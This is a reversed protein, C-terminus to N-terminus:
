LIIDPKNNNIKELCEKCIWEEFYIPNAKKDYSKNRIKKFKIKGNKTKVPKGNKDKVLEYFYKDTEFINVNPNGLYIFDNSIPKKNKYIEVTGKRGCLMCQVNKKKSQRKEM